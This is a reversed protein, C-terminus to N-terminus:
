TGLVASSFMRFFDQGFAPGFDFGGPAFHGADDPAELPERLAGDLKMQHSPANESASGVGTSM